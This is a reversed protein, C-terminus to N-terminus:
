ITEKEKLAECDSGQFSDTLRVDVGRKYDVTGASSYIKFGEGLINKAANLDRDHEVGCGKCTWTRDKLTLDKKIWGCKHCMKSSPFFRDIQIVTKNNWEAKYKLTRILNGWSADHIAKSMKRNKVMGKINLNEICIVDYNKVLNLTEKHIVDMRLNSIKEYVKAVKLRQKYYRHSGKKKRSLSRQSLGLEKAYQKLFKHNTAILGNSDIFLRKIGLDIGINKNTKSFVKYPKEVLISVFYKGTKTKSITARKIVGVIKRDVIMDIGKKYKPIYLKKGDVKVNQPVTVSDRVGKKKFKPFGKKEKFFRKFALDLHKLSAQLSQSNIERLWKFEEQKKLETLWKAQINYNM